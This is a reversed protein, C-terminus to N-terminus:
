FSEEVLIEGGRPDREEFAVGGRPDREEFAVGFEQNLKYCFAEVGVFLECLQLVGERGPEADM